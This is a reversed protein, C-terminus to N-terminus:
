TQVGAPVKVGVHAPRVAPEHSQPATTTKDSLGAAGVVGAGTAARQKTLEGDLRMRARFLLVKVHTETRRLVRAVEAVSLDEACKLWLADFQLSPLVRKALRWLDREAERQALLEAPDNEDREEPLAEAIALRASRHRDICKRRAITFLWTAFSRRADFKGLNRFAAVFADQTVEQADSANRCSNAVFRFVRAEYRYVLEEFSSACGAQARCALEEDSGLQKETTM